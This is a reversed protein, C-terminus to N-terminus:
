QLTLVETCMAGPRECELTLQNSAPGCTLSCSHGPAGFIILDTRVSEYVTEIDTKDFTVNGANSGFGSVVLNGEGTINLLTFM